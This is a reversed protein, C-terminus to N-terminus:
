SAWIEERALVWGPLLVAKNVSSGSQELADLFVDLLKQRAM